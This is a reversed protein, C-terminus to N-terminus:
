PTAEEIPRGSSKALRILRQRLAWAIREEGTHGIGETQLADPGACPGFDLTLRRFRPILKGRPLAEFAGGIWAPVAPVHTRLLLQGIGPLFRQLRGDPSRWGEPFWVESKGSELVRAATRVAADPHREDVPFLHVVRCFLRSAANDFLRVMGAWYLGRLHSLPLAAAIVLADLYSTHNPTIVFPGQAPLYDLGTARVRFLLRMVLRNVLHFLVGLATLFPGTPALWREIDEALAPGEAPLVRGDAHRAVCRRLLDRITAIGAMDVDSLRVGAREQLAITLEMWAFSDLNLDLALDVDLGTAGAPYRQRLFEWVARATPDALLAADEETMPQAPREPHGALAEAYLRPLLFRRYKGLRTRPLPQDTLAFGSLREYSPLQRATQALVVRMDDHLNTSGLERLKAPDPRVLAVLAGEAELVAIERIQPATGYIRELDEPNVKKGGGLVLIEKTRGTVFLFGDRDVCGLDGTRFWGDPTFGTRNAEPNNLYGATVSPGRLEIEGIGREDPDAIRIEGGALPRGASGRKRAEPRNGTFLSATEALGYGSLVIWGLAVLRDETTEDLRAGGSVLLRLHPAISRRIPAFLVRGVRLGTARQLGGSARFLGNVALRVPWGRAALRSDLAALMTDYLRPVGIITTVQGDRLARLIAPGSIDAPLVIAVGITLTTFAGIIFPYAHHLPLPLLARDEPGVIRLECLAEVNAAINRHTLHFAKPAGTTGSTFFLAAAADAPVAPLEADTPRLLTRWNPAALSTDANDLLFLRADSAGIAEKAAALHRSTTFILRAGSAQLATGFQAADALDDVPVLVNGSALVGLSVAIWESSNPAWLAVPIAADTSAGATALGCALAMADAALRGCEWVAVGAEGSVIVAPHRARRTLRHLLGAVTWGEGLEAAHGTQKDTM